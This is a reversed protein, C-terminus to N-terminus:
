RFCTGYTQTSVWGAQSPGDVSRFFTFRKVGEYNGQFYFQDTLDATRRQALRASRMDGVSTSLSTTGQDDYRHTKSNRGATDTIVFPGSGDDQVIIAPSRGNDFDQWGGILSQGNQFMNFAHGYCKFTAASAPVVTALAGIAIAGSIITKRM